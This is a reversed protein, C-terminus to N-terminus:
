LKKLALKIDSISDGDIYDSFFYVERDKLKLREAAIRASICIVFTDVEKLEKKYKELDNLSLILRPRFIRAAIFMNALLEANSQSYGIVAVKSKKEIGKKLSSLPKFNPETKIFTKEIPIYSKIFPYFVSPIVILNASKIAEKIESMKTEKNYFFGDFEVGSISQKLKQLNLDVLEQSIGNIFLVKNNKITQAQYFRASVFNILENINLKKRKAERVLLDVKDIFINDFSKNTKDKGIYSGKGRFSKIYGDNELDKLITVITNKNVKLEEAFQSISPLKDGEKYFGSNIHMKIQEKIQVGIPIPNNKDLQIDM